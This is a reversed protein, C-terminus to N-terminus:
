LYLEQVKDILESLDTQDTASMKAKGNDRMEGVHRLIDNLVDRQGNTLPLVHDAQYSCAMCQVEEGCKPCENPGETFEIAM